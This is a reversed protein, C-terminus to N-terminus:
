TRTVSTRGPRDFGLEPQHAKPAVLLPGLRWVLPDHREGCVVDGLAHPPGDGQGRVDVDVAYVDPRDTLCADGPKDTVGSPGRALLRRRGPPEIAPRLM